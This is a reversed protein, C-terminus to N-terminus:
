ALAPVTVADLPVATRVTRGLLSLLVVIRDRDSASQFLAEHGSFAGAVIRVPDGPKLIETSLMRVMGDDNERTRIEDIVWDPVSAPRDGHCILHQVGRTSHIARWRAMDLDMAVFVYRPFLPATVTDVRRAHRRTKAYHPLYVTFGQRELHTKALAEARPQTHAVYWTLM